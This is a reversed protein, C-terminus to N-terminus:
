LDFHNESYRTISKRFTMLRSMKTVSIEQVKKSNEDEYPLM